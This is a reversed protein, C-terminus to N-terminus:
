CFSLIKHHYWGPYWFTLLFVVVHFCMEDCLFFAGPLWIPAHSWNWFFELLSSVFSVLLLAGEHIGKVVGMTSPSTHHIPSHDGCSCCTSLWWLPGEQKPMSRRCCVFRSTADFLPPMLWLKCVVRTGRYLDCREFWISSYFSRWQLQWNSKPTPPENSLSVMVPLSHPVMLHLWSFFGVM